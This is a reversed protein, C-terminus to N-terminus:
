IAMPCGNMPVIYLTTAPLRLTHPRHGKPAAAGSMSCAKWLRTGNFIYRMRMIFKGFDITYRYGGHHADLGAIMWALSHNNILDSPEIGDPIRCIHLPAANSNCQFSGNNQLAAKMTIIIEDDYTYESREVMATTYFTQTGSSLQSLIVVTVSSVLLITIAGICLIRKNLM